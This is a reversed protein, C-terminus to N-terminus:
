QVSDLFDQGDLEQIRRNIRRRSEARSRVREVEALAIEVNMEGAFFPEHEGIWELAEAATALYELIVDLRHDMSQWDANM